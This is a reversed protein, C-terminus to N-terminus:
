RTTGQPAARAEAMFAAGVWCREDHDGPTPGYGACQPCEGDASVADLLAERLRTNEVTLREVEAVLAPVDAANLVNRAVEARRVTPWTAFTAVAGREAMETLTWEPM